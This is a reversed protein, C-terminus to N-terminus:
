PSSAGSSRPEETVFGIIGRERLASVAAAAAARTPYYDLRVRFPKAEGSVRAKVGRSALKAILREADPRTNYAALQITWTGRPAAPAARM